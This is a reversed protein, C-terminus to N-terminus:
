SDKLNNAINNMTDVDMPFEVTKGTEPDTIRLGQTQDHKGDDIWNFVAEGIESNKLDKLEPAITKAIKCLNQTTEIFSKFDILFNDINDPTIVDVIDSIKVLRHEPYKV